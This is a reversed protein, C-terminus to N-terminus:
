KHKKLFTDLEATTHELSLHTRLAGRIHYPENCLPCRIIAFSLVKSTNSWKYNKYKM